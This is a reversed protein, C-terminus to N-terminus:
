FIGGIQGGCYLGILDGYRVQDLPSSTVAYVKEACVSDLVSAFVEPGCHLRDVDAAIVLGYGSLHEALWLETRPGLMATDLRGNPYSADDIVCSVSAEDIGLLQSIRRRWRKVAVTETALILTPRRLAAIVGAMIGTKGSGVPATLVGCDQRLINQVANRQGPTLNKAAGQYVRGKRRNDTIEILPILESLRNMLGRPLHLRGSSLGVYYKFTGNSPFMALSCLAALGAPSIGNTNVYIKDCLEVRIKAPLDFSPSITTCPNPVLGYMYQIPDSIPMLADDTLTSYGSEAHFLPLMVPEDGAPFVKGWPELPLGGVSAAAERLLDFATKAASLPPTPDGFLLWLRGRDTIECLHTMGYFTCLAALIQLRPRFDEGTLEILSFRCLGSEDVPYIGVATRGSLHASVAEASLPMFSGGCKKCDSFIRACKSCSKRYRDEGSPTKYHITFVNKRGGLLRTMIEFANDM